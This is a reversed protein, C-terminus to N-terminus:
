AQGQGLKFGEAGPAEGSAPGALHSPADLPFAKRGPQQQDTLPDLIGQQQEVAKEVVGQQMVLALDLDYVAAAFADETPRDPVKEGAM